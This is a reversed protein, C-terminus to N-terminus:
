ADPRTWIWTATLGIAAASVLPWPMDMLVFALGLSIAFAITAAKKGKRSIAGRARWTRIPEGFHPHNLLYAEFEPNSRAFFFAALILFPVTPLLPLIAGIAGLALAVFGATLHVYKM